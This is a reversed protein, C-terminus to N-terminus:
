GRKRKSNINSTAIHKAIPLASDIPLFTAILKNSQDKYFTSVLKQFHQMVTILKETNKDKFYDKWSVWYYLGSLHGAALERAYVISNYIREVKYEKNNAVAEFELQEAIKEDVQGKKRTETELLSLHFIDHIM